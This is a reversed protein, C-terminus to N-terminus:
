FKGTCEKYGMCTSIDLLNFGQLETNREANNELLLRTVEPQNELVALSLPTYFGKCAVPAGNQILIKVVDSNRTLIAPMVLERTIYEPHQISYIKFDKRFRRFVNEFIDVTKSAAIKMIDLDPRVGHKFMVETADASGAEITEKLGRQLAGDGMVGTNLLDNLTDFDDMKVCLGVLSIKNVELATHSTDKKIVDAYKFLGARNSLYIEPRLIIHRLYGMKHKIIALHLPSLQFKGLQELSVRAKKLLFMLLAGDGIAAAAHMLSTKTQGVVEEIELTLSKLSSSSSFRSHMYSLPRNIETIELSKLSSSSRRKVLRKEPKNNNAIDIDVSYRRMERLNLQSNMSTLTPTLNNTPSDSPRAHRCYGRIVNKAITSFSEFDFGTEKIYTMYEHDYHCRCEHDFRSGTEKFNFTLYATALHPQRRFTDDIVNTASPHRTVILRLLDILTEEDSLNHNHSSM